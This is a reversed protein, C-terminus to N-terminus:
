LVPPGRLLQLGDPAHSVPDSHVAIRFEGPAEAIIVAPADDCTWTFSTVYDCLDCDFIDPHLHADGDVIECTHYVHTHLIEHFAPVFSPVALVALLIIGAMTRRWSIVRM